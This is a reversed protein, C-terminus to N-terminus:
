DAFFILLPDRSHKLLWEIAVIQNSPDISRRPVDGVSTRILSRPTGPALIQDGGRWSDPSGQDPNALAADGALAAPIIHQASDL